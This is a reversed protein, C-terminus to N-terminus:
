YPVGVYQEAMSRQAAESRELYALDSEQIKQDFGSQDPFRHMTTTMWWSFRTAQWVRALARESYGDIGRDDGKITIM